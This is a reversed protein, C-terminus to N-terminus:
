TCLGLNILHEMCLLGYQVQSCPFICSILKSRHNYTRPVSPLVFRVSSVKTDKQVDTITPMSCLIPPYQSMRHNVCAHVSAREKYKRVTFIFFKDAISKYYILTNTAKLTLRIFTNNALHFVTCMVMLEELCRGSVRCM